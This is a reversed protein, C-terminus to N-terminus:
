DSMVVIRVRFGAKLWGTGWTYMDGSGYCKYRVRLWGYAEGQALVYAWGIQLVGMLMLWCMVRLEVRRATRQRVRLRIGLV